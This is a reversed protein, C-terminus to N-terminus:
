PSLLNIIAILEAIDADDLVGDANIDVRGLASARVGVVADASEAELGAASAILRYVGTDAAS